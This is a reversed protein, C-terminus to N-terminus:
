HDLSINLMPRGSDGVKDYYKALVISLAALVGWNNLNTAKLGPGIAKFLRRVLRAVEHDRRQCKTVHWIDFAGDALPGANQPPPAVDEEGIEVWLGGGRALASEPVSRARKAYLEIHM